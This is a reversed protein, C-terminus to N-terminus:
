LLDSAFSVLALVIFLGAYRGFEYYVCVIVGVFGVTLLGVGLGAFVVCNVFPLQIADM